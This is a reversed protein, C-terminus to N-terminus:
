VCVCVDRYQVRNSQLHFRREPWVNLVIGIHRVKVCVESALIRFQCRWVNTLFSVYRRYLPRRKRKQRAEKGEVKSYCACDMAM